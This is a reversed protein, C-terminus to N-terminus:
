ACATTRAKLPKQKVPITEPKKKRPQLYGGSVLHNALHPYTKRLPPVRVGSTDVRVGDFWKLFDSKDLVASYNTNATYAVLAHVFELNAMFQSM